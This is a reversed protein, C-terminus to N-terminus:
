DSGTLLIPTYTQLLRSLHKDVHQHESGRARLLWYYMIVHSSTYHTAGCGDGFKAKIITEFVRSHVKIVADFVVTPWPRSTSTPPLPLCVSLSVPLCHKHAFAVMNVSGSSGRYYVGIFCVRNYLLIDLHWARTFWRWQAWLTGTLCSLTVTLWRVCCWSEVWPDLLLCSSVADTTSGQENRRFSSLPMHLWFFFEAERYLIVGMKWVTIGM